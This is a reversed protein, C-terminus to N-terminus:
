RCMPRAHFGASDIAHTIDVYRITMEPNSHGLLKM